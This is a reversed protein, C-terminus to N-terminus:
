HPYRPANAVFPAQQLALVESSLDMNGADRGISTRKENPTCSTQTIGQVHQTLLAGVFGGGKTQAEQGLRERHLQASFLRRVRRATMLYSCFGGLCSSVMISIIEFRKIGARLSLSNSVLQQHTQRDKHNSDAHPSHYSQIFNIWSQACSGVQSCAPLNTM